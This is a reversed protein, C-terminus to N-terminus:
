LWAFRGIGVIKIHNFRYEGSKAIEVGNRIAQTCNHDFHGHSVTVIDAWLGAPLEYGVKTYPDTLICTGEKTTLQFCSHGLYRIKM